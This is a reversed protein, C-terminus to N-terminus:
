MFNVELYERERGGDREEASNVWGQKLMSSDNLLHLQLGKICGLTSFVKLLLDLSYLPHGVKGIVPDHNETGAQV